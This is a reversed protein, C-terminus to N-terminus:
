PTNAISGVIWCCHCGRLLTVLISRKSVTLEALLFGVDSKGQCSDSFNAESVKEMVGRGLDGPEGSSEGLKWRGTSSAYAAGARRKVRELRLTCVKAEPTRGAESIHARRAFFDGSSLARSVRASSCAWPDTRPCCTASFLCRLTTLHPCCVM